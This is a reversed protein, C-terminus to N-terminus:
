LLLEHLPLIIERYLTMENRRDKGEIKNVEISVDRFKYIALLIESM